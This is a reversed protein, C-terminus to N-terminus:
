VVYGSVYSDPYVISFDKFNLGEFTYLCLQIAPKYDLYQPKDLEFKMQYNPDLDKSKSNIGYVRIASYDFIKLTNKMYMLVRAVTTNKILLNRSKMLKISKEFDLMHETKGVLDFCNDSSFDIYAECIIYEGPVRTKGWWHANEIFTDWFYYGNGLWSNKWSCPFPGEREIQDPNERDELTQYILKREM